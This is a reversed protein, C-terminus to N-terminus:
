LKPKKNIHLKNIATNFLLTMKEKMTTSELEQDKMKELVIKEINKRKSELETALAEKANELILKAELQTVYMRKSIVTNMSEIIKSNIEDPVKEM